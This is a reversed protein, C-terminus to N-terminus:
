KGCFGELAFATVPPRPPPPPDAHGGHQQSPASKTENASSMPPGEPMQTTDAPPARASPSSVPTPLPGRIPLAQRKGLCKCGTPFRGAWHTTAKARSWRLPGQYPPRRHNTAQPCSHYVLSIGYIHPFLFVRDDNSPMSAVQVGDWGWPGSFWSSPWLRSRGCRRSPRISRGTLRPLEGLM